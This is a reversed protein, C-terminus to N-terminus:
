GFLRVIWDNRLDAAGYLVSVQYSTQMYEPIESYTLAIGTLPDTMTIHTGLGLAQPDLPRIALGVGGRQMGINATHTAAKTWVDAAAHAAQIAPYVSVAIGAATTDVTAVDARVVYNYVVSATTVTLADGAKLTGTSSAKLYLNGIVGVADSATTGLTLTGTATGATQTPIQQDLWHNIGYVNGLLGSDKTEAAGRAMADTISSVGLAAAEATPDLLLHRDNMPCKGVNLYRRVDISSQAGVGAGYPTTAATGARRWAANKATTLVYANMEEIVALTQEVFQSNKFNGADIEQREKATLTFKDSRRWQNLAIQKTTPTKDTNAAPTVAPAVAATSSSVPVPVDILNGVSKVDPGFDVRCVQVARATNRMSPLTGSFIKPVLASFTNSM